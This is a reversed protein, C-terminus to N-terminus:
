AFVTERAEVVRAPVGVATAGAPLDHLVVANAGVQVQEGIVVPGFIRAGTGVQTFPGIRPGIPDGGRLGITVFPRVVVFSRLRTYGDIVVQGHPLYLGPDIVVRDGIAIQGRTVALRHLLVPLLPVHRAQCAAKARYCVQAFFSDTIACLRVVERVLGFGSSARDREGRFLLAVKTDARVAEVFGPHEAL